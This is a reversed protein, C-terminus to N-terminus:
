VFGMLKVKLQRCVQLTTAARQGKPHWREIDFLLKTLLDEAEQSKPPQNETERIGEWESFFYLKHSNGKLKQTM